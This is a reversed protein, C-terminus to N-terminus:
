SLALSQKDAVELVYRSIYGVEAGAGENEPITINSIKLMTPAENVNILSINFQADLYLPSVSDDDFCQIQSCM